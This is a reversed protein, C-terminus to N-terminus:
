RGWPDILSFFNLLIRFSNVCPALLGSQNLASRAAQRTTAQRRPQLNKKRYIEQNCEADHPQLASGQRGQQHQQSSANQCRSLDRATRRCRDVGLWQIGGLTLAKPLL